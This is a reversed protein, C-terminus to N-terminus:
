PTPAPATRTSATTPSTPPAPVSRVRNADNCDAPRASGDADRDLDETDAGSCDEDIGNDIVESAGPRIAADADNCDAPVSQATSTATTARSGASSSSSTTPRRRATTTRRGCTCGRAAPGRERRDRRGRAGTNTTGDVGTTSLRIDDVGVQRGAADLAQGYREFEQDVLGPLDNDAAWTVFYQDLLPHYTATTTRALNAGFAQNAAPGM